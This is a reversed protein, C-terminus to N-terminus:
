IDPKRLFALLIRYSRLLESIEIFESGTHAQAIDGPGFVVTPIGRSAYAVANTLYAVAAPESSCGSESAAKLLDSVLKDDPDTYVAPRDTDISIELNPISSLLTQIESLISAPSEGPVTRRDIDIRCVAPVINVGTGGEITGVNMTPKGLTDHGRAGELEQLHKGLINLVEVMSMIANQGREPYAGHAAKGTTQIHFRLLGKHANIVEGCTPEGVIAGATESDDLSEAFRYAGTQFEEEDITGVFVLPRSLLETQSAFHAFAALFVALSGKTDCTGRGYIKGNSQVPVFPDDAQWNAVGVTDLHADLVWAPRDDGPPAIRAVVNNRGPFVEQFKPTVGTDELFHCVWEALSAEGAGGYAPNVSSMGVLRGHLEVLAQQVSM